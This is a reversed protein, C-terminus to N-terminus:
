NVIKINLYIRDNFIWQREYSYFDKGIHLGHKHILYCHRINRAHYDVFLQYCFVLQM